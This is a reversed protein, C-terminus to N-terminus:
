KTVKFSAVMDNFYPEMESWRSAASQCQLQYEQDGSVLFYLNAKFATGGQTYEAPATFGKTGNVSVAQLDGISGKNGLSQELQPLIKELEQQVLPMMAPTITANLKYVSVLMGDRAKGDIETGNPDAFAVEFVSSGGASTSSSANTTEKFVSSDYVLSFNYKANTYTTPGGGCGALVLAVALVALTAAAITTVTRTRM